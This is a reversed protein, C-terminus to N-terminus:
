YALSTRRAVPPTSFFPPPPHNTTPTGSEAKTGSPAHTRAAQKLNFGFTVTARECSGNEADLLGISTLLIGVSVSDCLKKEEKASPWTTCPGTFAEADYEAEFRAYPRAARPVCPFARQHTSRTCLDRAARQRLACAVM